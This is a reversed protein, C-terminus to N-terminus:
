AGQHPCQLRIFGSYILAAAVICAFPIDPFSAATSVVTSRASPWLNSIWPNGVITYKLTIWLQTEKFCKNQQVMKRLLITFLCKLCTIGSLLLCDYIEHSIWLLWRWGWRWFFRPWILRWFNNMECFIGKTITQTHSTVNLCINISIKKTESVKKVRSFEAKTM